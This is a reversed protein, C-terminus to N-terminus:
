SLEVNVWDKIERGSESCKLNIVLWSWIDFRDDSVFSVGEPPNDVVEEVFQEEGDFEVSMEIEFGREGDAAATILEDDPVSAGDECIFGDYSHKAFDFLEYEKGCDRCVAKVVLAYRGNYARVGLCAPPYQEGFYRIGFTECGCGCVIKGSLFCDGREMIKMINELRM